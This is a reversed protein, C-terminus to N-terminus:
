TLKNGLLSFTLGTVGWMGVSYLSAGAVALGRVQIFTCLKMVRECDTATLYWDLTCKIRM